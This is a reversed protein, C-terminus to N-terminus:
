CSTLTEVTEAASMITVLPETVTLTRNIMIAFGTVTGTAPLASFALERTAAYGMDCFHLRSGTVTVRILLTM